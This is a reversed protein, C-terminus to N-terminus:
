RHSATGAASLNCTVGCTPCPTGHSLGLYGTRTDDHDLHAPRTDGLPHHCRACPTQPTAASVARRRARDHHRDYGRAQRTGRARDAQRRCWPCRGTDTLEPCGPQSCVRKARTM